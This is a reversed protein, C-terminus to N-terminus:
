SLERQLWDALRQATEEDGNALAARLQNVTTRAAERLFEPLTALSDSALQAVTEPAHECGCNLHHTIHKLRGRPNFYYHVKPNKYPKPHKNNYYIALRSDILNTRYKFYAWAIAVLARRKAGPVETTNPDPGKMELIYIHNTASDKLVLDFEYTYTEFAISPKRCADLVSLKEREYDSLTQANSLNNIITDITQFVNQPLSVVDKIKRRVNNEGWSTIAIIMAIKEMESGLSTKLGHIRHLLPEFDKLLAMVFPNGSNALPKGEAKKIYKNVTKEILKTIEEEAKKSLSM